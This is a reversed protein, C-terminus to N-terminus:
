TVRIVCAYLIPGKRHHKVSDCVSGLIAFRTYLTRTYLYRFTLYYLKSGEICPLETGTQLMMAYLMFQCPELPIFCDREPFDIAGLDEVM